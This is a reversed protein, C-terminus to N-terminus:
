NFQEPIKIVKLFNFLNFFWVSIAGTKPLNKFDNIDNLTISSVAKTVKETEQKLQFTDACRVSPIPDNKPKETITKATKNYQQWEWEWNFWLIRLRVVLEVQLSRFCYMIMLCSMNRGTSICEREISLIQDKRQKYIVYYLWRTIRKHSKQGRSVPPVGAPCSVKVKRELRNWM